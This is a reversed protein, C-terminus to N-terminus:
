HWVKSRLRESRELEPLLRERVEMLGASTVRASEALRVGRVLPIALLELEAFTVLVSRPLGREVLPKTLLLLEALTDLDALPLGPLLLKVLLSVTLLAGPNTPLLLLALKDWILDLGALM